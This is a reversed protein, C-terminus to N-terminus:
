LTNSSSLQQMNSANRRDNSYIFSTKAVRGVNPAQEKVEESNKREAVSNVKFNKKVATKARLKSKKLVSNTSSNKKSINTRHQPAIATTMTSTFDGEILIGNTTTPTM